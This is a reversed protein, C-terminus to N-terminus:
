YTFISCSKIKLEFVQSFTIFKFITNQPYIALLMGSESHLSESYFSMPSIISPIEAIQSCTPSKTEEEEISMMM